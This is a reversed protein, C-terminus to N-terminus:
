SAAAWIKILNHTTCWLSWEADVTEQGRLLFQNLGRCRKMQGFVPEPLQKRLGYILRGKKTRLKRRVQDIFPLDGPPRGRTSPPKEGHKLRDPCVYDDIKQRRLETVNEESYYGSDASMQKPKRKLNKKIQKVMPQLQEKDNPADNAECAM